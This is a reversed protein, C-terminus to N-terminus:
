RAAAFGADAGFKARMIVRDADLVAWIEGGSERAMLGAIYAPAFKPKLDACEGAFAKTLDEPLYIKPGQAEVRFYDGGGTVTVTGGRPASDAAAHTLILVTKVKEKAVHGPALRWVLSAKTWKFLERLAAEAEEMPLESGRGGGAGYALRAFKLLTISKEGGSRILDVAAEKMSQDMDPDDLVELGSSLAGVPNILDHCLRSALLASLAIPDLAAPSGSM